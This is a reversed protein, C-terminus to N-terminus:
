SEPRNPFEDVGIAEVVVELHHIVVEDATPGAEKRLTGIIVLSPCRVWSALLLLSERKAILILSM